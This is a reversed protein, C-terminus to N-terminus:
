LTLLYEEKFAKQRKAEKPYHINGSLYASLAKMGGYYEPM